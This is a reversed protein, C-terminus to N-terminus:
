KRYLKRQYIYDIVYDDLYKKLVERNDINDRVITSSYGIDNIDDIIIYDNTKNLSSLYKKIDINGRQIIILHNKLLEKYNKWKDFNVINDAGIILSFTADKYKEKLANIVQYTYDLGSFESDIKISATEYFKLMNIRDNLSVLNNKDWYALTPIILVKDTIRNDIICNAIKIHGKHVPNFSGVYVGIKM